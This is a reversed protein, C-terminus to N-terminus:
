LNQLTGWVLFLHCAPGPVHRDCCHDKPKRIKGRNRSIVGVGGCTEIISSPSRFLRYCDLEQSALGGNRSDCRRTLTMIKSLYRGVESRDARTKDSERESGSLCGCRTKAGRKNESSILHRRHKKSGETNGKLKSCQAQRDRTACRTSRERGESV